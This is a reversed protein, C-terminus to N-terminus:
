ITHAVLSTHCKHVSTASGRGVRQVRERVSTLYTMVYSHAIVDIGVELPRNLRLEPWKTRKHM